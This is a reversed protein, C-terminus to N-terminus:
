MNGFSVLFLFFVSVLFHIFDNCKRQECVQYVISRSRFLPLPLPVNAEQSYVSTRQNAGFCEKVGSLLKTSWLHMCVHGREM